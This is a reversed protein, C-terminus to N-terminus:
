LSTGSASSDPLYTNVVRYGQARRIMDRIEGNLELLKSCILSLDQRSGVLAITGTQGLTQHRFYVNLLTQVESESGGGFVGNPWLRRCEHIYRIAKSFEQNNLCELIAQVAAESSSFSPLAASAQTQTHAMHTHELNSAVAAEAARLSTKLDSLERSMNLLEPVASVAHVQGILKCYSQFLLLLQFHLKYLRQCLELQALSEMQKEESDGPQCTIVGDGPCRPFTDKCNRLWSVAAEERNNYTDLYEQLELVSFKMKELLGYSIITDADVYLTPCDSCTTLMDSSRVFKSGIGRLGDGLYGAADSTLSCFKTQINQFLSSFVHFTYVACSGDSDTVLQNIHCRWAEEADDCVTPQFAALIASFFPSPPPPFGLDELDDVDDRLSPLCSPDLFGLPPRCLEM